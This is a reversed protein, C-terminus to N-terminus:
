IDLNRVKRAETKIFEKRPEVREGMLKTFIEDAGAEGGDEIDVRLLTRTEPNMTTEWLQDANMEGLGKFRQVSSSKPMEKQIRERDKESQAYRTVKGTSIRYLPPQAIYLYGANIVEPMHRYFFTLLLTRIHAGDVDADTMIIIRHYRLKAIDFSDGIGGGLAIILPKVNDSSLIRDLRAKEVNLLKGRMPLIAQFRRDRGQKASGGASDGEVIYIESKAPDREQCDALKGPLSMGDLAGKRIVLDRAKRAADRARASMLCKEIIRRGDAPNEELHQAIADALAAEVQGAVEANGLKAKTQGEFQPDTLKVSVVATLGERVDEGSLNGDADKLVGAKKAWDNLSRTLARRFGTIHTGGDVTNINNAFALVNEAYSDNYQLAVEISTSGDRRECYIPRSHLTEKNRNLHRVFSVLGGEFYFSRERDVREDRLTIWVGKTLYASERLRQSITDFSFDTSEFVDADAQFVTTTGRRHGQPGVKEVKTIPKGRRYEQSWVGGDRSSEVRLWSSLANVVSIGVGHLGGSVKYGGGGFKGGAHLVTHVVELADKGTSHRGVPVGRGDDEVTMRGDQHITVLVTTAHGAMAEDISNDVVEWVLHHLGRQDTSGIYMGPRRRVAELGELVQINAAGYENGAAKAKRGGAARGNTEAAAERDGVDTVCNRRDPARLAEGAGRRQLVRDRDPRGQALPEPEGEDGVAPPPGGGGARPGTRTPSRSNPPGASGGPAGAPTARARGDPARVPRGSAGDRRCTAARRGAPRRASARPGRHTSGGRDGGPGRSPPGAAAGHQRREGPVQRRPGRRSGADARVRRDAPPIGNSRRHSRPRGAPRERGPRDRAPGSGCASPRPGSDARPGRTEVRPRSARGRGAPIGRADGHRARAAPRRAGPHECRAGRTSCRRRSASAPVPQSRVARDRGRRSGVPQVSAAPHALRAWSRARVRHPRGQRDRRRESSAPDVRPAATRQCAAHASSERWAPTPTRGRRSPSTCPSPSGTAPPKPSDSAARSSRRSCPM